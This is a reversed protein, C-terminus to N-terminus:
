FERSRYYNRITEASVRNFPYWYYLRFSEGADWWESNRLLGFGSICLGARVFFNGPAIRFYRTPYM